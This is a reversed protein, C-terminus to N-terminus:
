AIGLTEATRFNAKDEASLAEFESRVVWVLENAGVGRVAVYKPVFLRLYDEPAYNRVPFGRNPFAFSLGFLHSLRSANNICHGVFDNGNGVTFVKGRAVGCRLIRPPRDITETIRPYFDTRYARCIDYLTVTLRCIQAETMRQANWLILLGDGMFKVKMPLEAWVTTRNGLTETTLRQRVSVFFWELFSKLFRPIALYADVQNCFTTFGTLDFVATVAEREQCPVALDGLNLMAPNFSKFTATDMVRLGQAAAAPRAGTGASTRSSRVRHVIVRKM